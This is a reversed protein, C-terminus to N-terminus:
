SYSSKGNDLLENFSLSDIWTKASTISIGVVPVFKRELPKQRYGRFGVEEWMGAVMSIGIIMSWAQLAPLDNITRLNKFTEPQFEIFCFTLILSAKLVVIILFAAVLGWSWELRKLKIQRICYRSFAQTSLPNWKGNFYTWYLILFTGM